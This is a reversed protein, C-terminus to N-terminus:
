LSKYYKVFIEKPTRRTFVSRTINRFTRLKMRNEESPNLANRLAAKIRKGMEASWVCLALLFYRFSSGGSFFILSGRVASPRVAPSLRSATTRWKHVVAAGADVWVSYGRKRALTSLAIDEPTFYYTEDFWGLERFIDTRILFAAGSINSTPYVEGFVPTKGARDDIPERHLHWQQLAYYRAPYPPRGCLQLSGDANDLRPAVIATNQPLREFDEVLKGITDSRIETDDNLVFCYRGRAERLALNNNESFGRLERSEIFRVWPFDERVKRLNEESFMYSVVLTEFSVSTHERLSELCPYLNDLRNMCVIVVSVEPPLIERLPIMVFDRERMMPHPVTLTPTQIREDGCLLIDIDIPRSEYIRKGESDYRPGSNSRGMEREIEKCVRLIEEAPSELDFRVACNIFPTPAEFGWPETELFSSLKVINRSTGELASFREEMLGLAKRLAAERDGLNSGLSFYVERTEMDIM